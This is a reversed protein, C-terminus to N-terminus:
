QRLLKQVSVLQGTEDYLNVFYMGAALNSTNIVKANKLELLVKGDISTVIANVISPADINVLDTAPNPFLSYVGDSEVTSIQLPFQFLETEKSCGNFDTVKVYYANDSNTATFSYTTAGPIVGNATDFWQYSVYFPSTSMIRTAWNFSLVPAPLPNITVITSTICGFKSYIIQTTDPFHGSVKGTISDVEAVYENNTSWRGGTVGNSLVAESNSCIAMPGAIPPLPPIVELFFTTACGTPLTYGIYTIGAVLGGVHGTFTDISAVAPNSSVWTGGGVIDTLSIESGVCVSDSGEIDALPYVTVIESTSCGSGVTYKIITTGMSLGSVVGNGAVSIVTAVTTDLSSWTGGPATSMLTTSQGYCTFFVGSITGPLPNVTIERAVPSCGPVTYTINVTANSVGMVIGTASGVLAVSPDGTSWSGGPVPNGLTITSGACVQGPGTITGPPPSVNVSTTSFCNTSSLRYTITATGAVNGSVIGTGAGVSAVFPFSSSWSGGSTTNSLNTTGGVCVGTSGTIPAPNPNVNMLKTTYCGTATIKYTITAVGASFASVLGSASGVDATGPASSSWTGGPTSNSFTITSGVCRTAVAVPTIIAPNDFAYMYRTVYCGGLTYTIHAGGATSAFADGSSNVSIVAANSSTWNGGSFANTLNTTTGVCV